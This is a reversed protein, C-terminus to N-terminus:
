GDLRVCPLLSHEPWPKLDIGHHMAIEILDDIRGQHQEAEDVMGACEATIKRQQAAVLQARLEEKM